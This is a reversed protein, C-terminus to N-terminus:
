LLEKVARSTAILDNLIEVNYGKITSPIKGGNHVINFANTLLERNKRKIVFSQQISNLLKYAQTSEIEETSITSIIKTM